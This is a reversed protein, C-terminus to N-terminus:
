TQPLCALLCVKLTALVLSYMVTATRSTSQRQAALFLRTFTRRVSHAHMVSRFFMCSRSVSAQQTSCVRNTSCAICACWYMIVLLPTRQTFGVKKLSFAIFACCHVYEFVNRKHSPARACTHTHTHTPTHTHAHPTCWNLSECGGSNVM